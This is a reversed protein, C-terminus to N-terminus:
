QREPSASPIVMQTARPDGRGEITCSWAADATLGKEDLAIRDRYNALEVDLMIREVGDVITPQCPQSTVHASRM